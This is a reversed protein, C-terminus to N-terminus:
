KNRREIALKAYYIYDKRVAEIDAYDEFSVFEFEGDAGLAYILVRRLSDRPSPTAEPEFQLLVARDGLEVRVEWPLPSLYETM